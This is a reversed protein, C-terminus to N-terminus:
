KVNNYFDLEVQHRLKESTLFDYGTQAMAASSLIMQETATNTMTAFAFDKNHLVLSTNETIAIWPHITPVVHSVNGIDSTASYGTPEELIFSSLSQYNKTFAESLAENTVLNDVRNEFETVKVEVDSAKSTQVVCPSVRDMYENLKHKNAARIYFRMSTYDPIINPRSGGNDIIGYINADPIYQKLNNINLYSMVMADLANKCYEKPQAAHASSGFFEFQLAGLGLTAGSKVSSSYPHCMIVADVHDFAGERVLTIKGSTSEEDPTGYVIIKGGIRDIVKKLGCAAGFSMAAILNHGCAHGIGPLADYECLFAITPGPIESSYEACFSTEMSCFNQTVTFGHSCLKSSLLNCAIYEELGLEPNNYLTERIELLESAINKIETLIESKIDM